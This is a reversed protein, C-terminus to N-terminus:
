MLTCRKHFNYFLVYGLRGGIIVGLILYTIFSDVQEIDMPATRFKWLYERKLFFRMIYVAFIFGAIYSLAYWRLAFEFEGIAISFIVPSINPFQIM